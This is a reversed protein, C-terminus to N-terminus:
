KQHGELRICKNKWNCRNSGYWSPFTKSKPAIYTASFVHTQQHGSSCTHKNASNITLRVTFVGKSYM